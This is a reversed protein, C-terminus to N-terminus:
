SGFNSESACFVFKTEPNFFHCKRGKRREKRISKSKKEGTTKKKRKESSKNTKKETPFTEPFIGLTTFNKSLFSVPPYRFM